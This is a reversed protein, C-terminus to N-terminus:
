RGSEVKEVRPGELVDPSGRLVNTVALDNTYTLTAWSHPRMFLGDDLGQYFMLLQLHLTTLPM